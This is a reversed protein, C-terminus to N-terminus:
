ATRRRAVGVAALGVLLLALTGPEPVPAAAFTVEAGLYDVPILDVFTTADVWPGGVGSTAQTGVFTSGGATSLIEFVVNGLVNVPDLGFFDGVAWSELLGDFVDPDRSLLPDGITEDRFFSVFGLVSSDFFIDFGGGLTGNAYDSFDMVVDFAVLDSVGVDDVPSTPQLSISAANATMPSLLVAIVVACAIRIRKM